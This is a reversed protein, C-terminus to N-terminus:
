KQKAISVDNKDTSIVKLMSQCSALSVTTILLILGISSRLTKSM